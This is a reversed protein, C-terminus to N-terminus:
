DIHRRMASIIYLVLLVLLALFAYRLIWFLFAM